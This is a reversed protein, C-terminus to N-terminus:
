LHKKELATVLEKKYDFDTPAIFSGRLSKVLPSMNVAEKKPTEATLSKLYNEIINSLSRNNQKAYDKANQIVDQEIVLTLKTNM